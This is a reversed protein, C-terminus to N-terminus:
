LPATGNSVFGFILDAVTPSCNAFLTCSRPLGAVVLLLKHVIQSVAPDLLLGFGLLPVYLITLGPQTEAQPQAKSDISRATLCPSTRTRRRCVALARGLIQESEVRSAGQLLPLIALDWLEARIVIRSVASCSRRSLVPM